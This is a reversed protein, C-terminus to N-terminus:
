KREKFRRRPKNDLARRFERRISDELEQQTKEENTFYMPVECDGVRATLEKVDDTDEYTVECPLHIGKELCCMKLIRTSVDDVIRM